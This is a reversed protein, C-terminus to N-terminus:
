LYVLELTASGDLNIVENAPLLSARNLVASVDLTAAIRRYNGVTLSGPAGWSVTQDTRINGTANRTWASNAQAGRALLDLATGDGILKRITVRYAGINTSGATGLGYMAKQDIIDPFAVKSASRNDTARIGVKTPADCSISLEVERTALRNAEEQGLSGHGIDAYNVMGDGQLVPMCASPRIVGRVQLHASAGAAFGPAAVAAALLLTSNILTRQNM